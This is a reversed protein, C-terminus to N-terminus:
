ARCLRVQNIDIGVDRWVIGYRGLTKDIIQHPLPIFESFEAERAGRTIPNTRDKPRERTTLATNIKTNIIIPHHDNSDQM